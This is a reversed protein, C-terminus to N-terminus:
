EESHREITRSTVRECPIRQALEDAARQGSEPADCSFFDVTMFRREPWTSAALHSQTLVAIYTIGHPSFSHILPTGVVKLESQAVMRAMAEALRDPDSLLTADDVGEFDLCYLTGIRMARFGDVRKKTQPAGAHPEM